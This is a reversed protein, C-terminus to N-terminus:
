NPKSRFESRAQSSVKKKKKRTHTHTNLFLRVQCKIVLESVFKKKKLHVLYYIYESDFMCETPM